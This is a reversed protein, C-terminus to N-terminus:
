SYILPPPSPSSPYRTVPDRVVALIQVAPLQSKIREPVESYVMYGPSAEGTIHGEPMTPPFGRSFYTEMATNIAAGSAHGEPYGHDFFQLQKQVAPHVAPHAALYYYLSSTGSKGAGIILFSPRCRSPGDSEAGKERRPPGCEAPPPPLRDECAAGAYGRPCRCRHMVCAGGHQCPAACTVPAAASASRGMPPAASAATQARVPPAPGAFLGQVPNSPYADPLMATPGDGTLLLVLGGLLMLGIAPKVRLVLGM